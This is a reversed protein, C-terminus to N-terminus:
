LGKYITVKENANNKELIPLTAATCEYVRKYSSHDTDKVRSDAIWVESAHKLFIDLMYLNKTNYLVDAAALLDYSNTCEAPSTCTIISVDNLEANYLAAKLANPDIDCAVAEHAGAMAAAIAVIGSGSGFDIIRRGAVRQPNQFIYSALAIGSAWCFAWFPTDRFIIQAEKLSFGRDMGSPNLLYLKLGRCSPISVQITKGGPLVTQLMKDLEKM